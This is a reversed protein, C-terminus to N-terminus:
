PAFNSCDYFRQTIRPGRLIHLSLYIESPFRSQLDKLENWKSMKMAKNTSWTSLNIHAQTPAIYIM